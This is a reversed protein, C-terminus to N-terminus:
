IADTCDRDCEDCAVHTADPENYVDMSYVDPRECVDPKAKGCYQCVKWKKTQRM